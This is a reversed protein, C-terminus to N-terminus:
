SICEINKKLQHIDAPEVGVAQAALVGPTAETRPLGTV